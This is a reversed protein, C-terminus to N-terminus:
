LEKAAILGQTFGLLVVKDKSGAPPLYFLLQYGYTAEIGTTTSEKGSLTKVQGSPSVTSGAEAPRVREFENLETAVLAGSELTSLSLVTGTAESDGFEITVKGGLTAKRENKYDVGFQTRLTDGDAEFLDFSPSQDGQLLVSGYDPSLEKPPVLTLKSDSKIAPAGVNPPAVDITKQNIMTIAYHIRYNDRPTDQVLVLLQRAEPDDANPVVTMVTRPWTDTAEPLTLVPMGTPIPDVAAVASDAGRITYNASRLELAPGAMRQKLMEVDRADDASGVVAAAKAVIEELQSDTVAPASMDADANADPTATSAPQPDGDFDPWYDSSCGGLALALTLTVPVAIFASKTSRRGRAPASEIAAQKNPKYKPLPPPKPM